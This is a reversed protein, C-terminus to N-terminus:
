AAHLSTLMMLVTRKACNKDENLADFLVQTTFSTSAAEVAEDFSPTASRLPSTRTVVRTFLLLQRLVSPIWHNLRQSEDSRSSPMQLMNSSGNDISSTQAM